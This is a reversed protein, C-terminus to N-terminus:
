VQGKLVLPNLQLVASVVLLLCVQKMPLRESFCVVWGWWTDNLTGEKSSSHFRRLEWKCSLVFLPITNFVFLREQEWSQFVYFYFINIFFSCFILILYFISFMPSDFSLFIVLSTCTFHFITTLFSSSLHNFNVVIRVM